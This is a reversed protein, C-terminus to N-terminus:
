SMLHCPSDCCSLPLESRAGLARWSSFSIQPVDTAASPFRGAHARGASPCWCVIGVTTAKGGPPKAKWFAAWSIPNDSNKRSRVVVHFSRPNGVMGGRNDVAVDPVFCWPISALLSLVRRLLPVTPDGRILRMSLFRLPPCPAHRFHGALEPIRSRYM